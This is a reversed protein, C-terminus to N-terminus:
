YMYSQTKITKIQDFLHDQVDAYIRWYVAWSFWIYIMQDKAEHNLQWYIKSSLNDTNTFTM